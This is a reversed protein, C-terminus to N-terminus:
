SASRPRTRYLTCASGAIRGLRARAPLSLRPGLVMFGTYFLGMPGIEVIDFGYREFERRWHPRGFTWLESFANGHEGHRVPVIRGAVARATDILWGALGRPASRSWLTRPLQRSQQWLLPAVDLWGAVLTWFRWAPSPLIHVACGGPALVRAIEPLLTGLDRVHELVNSSFVVDFSGDPLPIRRGDYDLVPFVRETAYNSAPVDIATVRFGREALLRAQYGTGAGVELV